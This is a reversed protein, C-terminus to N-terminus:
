RKHKHRHRRSPSRSRSRSRRSTRRGSGVPSRSRSRSRSYHSRRPTRSEGPPPSRHKKSAKDASGPSLRSRDQDRVQRDSDRDRSRDYEKDRMDDFSAPSPSRNRKSNYTGGSRRSSSKSSYEKDTYSSSHGDTSTSDSRDNRDKESKRLLKERYIKVMESVTYGHKIGKRGSELEDQYALVKNEIERLKSRREHSSEDELGVTAKRSQGVSSSGYYNGSNSYDSSDDAMPAGDIDEDDGEDYDVLLGKRISNQSPSDTNSGRGGYGGPDDKNYNESSNEEFLDWKSTTTVAQAKVDEPDVTEWKTPVFGGKFKNEIQSESFGGMDGQTTMAANPDMPMGDLDDIPVGDLEESGPEISQLARVLNLASKPPMQARPPSKRRKLLIEEDNDVELGEFIKEEEERSNATLLGLFINQLRILFENPYIGWDEWARFCGMVRQKFSEAMSGIEEACATQYAFHIEQFISPLHQKFGKRYGFANMGKTSCNHLVDSIVHLRAIKKTLPTKPNSLSEKICQCIEDASEAHEISFIMVEAVRHREPTINRLMRELRERQANSLTGKRIEREEEPILEDPMGQTFPNLTPPRWISGHKFMRFEDTRWRQTSDGQLISFLKWRYYVHAPSQNEFLFRYQPNNIERNMIMAEFMPGERTVFEVMRHILSVLTRDTPVVVKVTSNYLIRDFEEKGKSDTPYPTGVPPIRHRDRKDPQANFPLGSLPPPMTLEVMAPPIFIPYAPIPVAKGWGLKIESGLIEKGALHKLAREGDRRSMFAVFGSLRNRQKEEDTRPWMVKVSALPGYKGFIEMLQQESIKTPLNGLYINTTNPDGDDISGMRVDDLELSLSARLDDGPKPPLKIVEQLGLMTKLRHREEREEQIIKLEEKFIELNSKKKEKEKKKGLREPRLDESLSVPDPKEDKEFRSTPKYLKGKEKSDDHRKGAEYTGAKIWVKSSSKSAASDQFVAVYEEFAQAAAQEEAKKRQDELDKKSVIKKNANPFLFGKMISPIQM